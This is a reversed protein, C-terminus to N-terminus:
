GRRQARIPGPENSYIRRGQHVGLYQFGHGPAPPRISGHPARDVELDARRIAEYEEISLRRRQELPVAIELSAAFAGAGPVVRGAFFEAASGSGYSYFGVRDGEVASRGEALLSALAFYLSAAYTNGVLSPLVLSPAVEHAFTADAADAALGDIALRHRHAKKAMKGYPVHYLTRQLTTDLGRADCAARWAGVAGALADLYCDNAYHGDPVIGEKDHIPRWFDDVDTAFAGSTGVELEVLRPASSVIMAVAGAGQTPEAPSGLHYRATDSAVVLAVRGDDGGAYIWEAASLLGVTGGFCAQKTEFVRCRSSLGLMGHLFAAISKSHDVGTETGVVCLGIESPARGSRELVRAAANAALAVADEHPAAIAMRVCGIGDVYKSPPVGRAAALDALELYLEPVALAIADIGISRVKGEKAPRSAPRRDSATM